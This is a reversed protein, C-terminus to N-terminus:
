KNNYMNNEFNCLSINSTNNCLYYSSSLYNKNNTFTNNLFNYNKPLKCRNCFARFSYNLNKCTSCFWDDKRNYIDKFNFIKNGEKSKRDTIRKPNKKEGCRNCKKRAEYNFNNCLICVWGKRGFMEVLYENDKENKKQEKKIYINQSDNLTFLNISKESKESATPSTQASTSSSEKRKKINNIVFENNLNFNNININNDLTNLNINITNIDLFQFKNYVDENKLNMQNFSFNNDFLNNNIFFNTDENFTKTSLNNYKEFDNKIKLQYNNCNYVDKNINKKLYEITSSYYIYIANNDEFNNKVCQNESFYNNIYSNSNNQTLYTNNDKIENFNKSFSQHININNNQINM